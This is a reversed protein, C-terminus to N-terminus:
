RYDPHATSDIVWSGLIVPRSPFPFSLFLRGLIFVGRFWRIYGFLGFLLLLIYLRFVLGVVLLKFGIFRGLRLCLYLFGGFGFWGSWGIIVGLDFSRFLRWRFSRFFWWGSSIRAGASSSWGHMGHRRMIVPIWRRVGGYFGASRASIRRRRTAVIGILRGRGVASVWRRVSIIHWRVGIVM